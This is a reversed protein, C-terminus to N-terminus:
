ASLSETEEQTRAGNLKDEARYLLEYTRGLSIKLSKAVVKMHTKYYHYELFIYGERPELLELPYLAAKLIDSNLMM